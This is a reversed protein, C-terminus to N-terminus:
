HAWCPRQSAPSPIGYMIWAIVLLVTQPDTHLWYFMSGKTARFTQRCERCIYRQEQQSQVGINGKGQQGRAPCDLNPCFVKQPNM